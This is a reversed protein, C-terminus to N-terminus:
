LGIHSIFATGPQKFTSSIALPYFGEYRTYKPNRYSYYHPEKLKAFQHVTFM